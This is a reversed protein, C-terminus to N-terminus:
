LLEAPGATHNRRCPTLRPPASGCCVCSSPAGQTPELCLLCRPTGPWPPRLARVPRVDSTLCTEVTLKMAAAAEQPAAPRRQSGGHPCSPPPLAGRRRRQARVIMNPEVVMQTGHSIRTLKPYLELAEELDTLDAASVTRVRPPCPTLPAPPSPTPSRPPSPLLPPPPPVTARRGWTFPSGSASTLRVSSRRRRRRLPAPCTLRLESSPRRRRHPASDSAPLASAPPASPPALRRPASM